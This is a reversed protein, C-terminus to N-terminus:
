EFKNGHSMSTSRRDITFGFHWFLFKLISACQSSSSHDPGLTTEILVQIIHQTYKSLRSYIVRGRTGYIRPRFSLLQDLLNIGINEKYKEFINWTFVFIFTCRCAQKERIYYVTIIITTTLMSWFYNIVSKWYIIPKARHIIRRDRTLQIVLNWCCSTDRNISKILQM